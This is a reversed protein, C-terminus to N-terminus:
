IAGMKRLIRALARRDKFENVFHIALCHAPSKKTKPLRSPRAQLSIVPEGDQTTSDEIIMTVKAM